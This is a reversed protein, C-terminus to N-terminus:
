EFAAMLKAFIKTALFEGYAGLAEETEPKEVETLKLGCKERGVMIVSLGMELVKEKAPELQDQLALMMMERMLKEHEPKSNAILCQAMPSPPTEQALAPAAGMALVPALLAVALSRKM